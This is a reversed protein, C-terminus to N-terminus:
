LLSGPLSALEFVIGLIQALTAPPSQAFSSKQTPAPSLVPLVRCRSFAPFPCVPPFAPSASLHLTLHTCLQPLGLYFTRHFFRAPPARISATTCTSADEPLPCPTGPHQRDHLHLCGRALPLPHGSAPPQAPPPTRLCTCTPIYTPASIPYNSFIGDVPRCSVGPPPSLHAWRMVRPHEVACGKQWPSARSAPCPMM